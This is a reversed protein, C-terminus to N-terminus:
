RCHLASSHPPSPKLILELASLPAVLSYIFPNLDPISPLVYVDLKLKSALRQTQKIISALVSSANMSPGYHSSIGSNNGVSGSGGAGLDSGLGGVNGISNFDISNYDPLESRRNDEDSSSNHRQQERYHENQWEISRQRRMIQSATLTGLHGNSM